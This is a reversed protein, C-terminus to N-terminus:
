LLFYIFFCGKRKCVLLLDFVSQPDATTWADSVRHRVFEYYWAEPPQGVVGALSPSLPTAVALESSQCCEATPLLEESSEPLVPVVRSAFSSKTPM